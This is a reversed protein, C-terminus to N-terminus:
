KSEKAFLRNLHRGMAKLKEYLPSAPDSKLVLISPSADIILDAIDQEKSRRYAIRYATKGDVDVKRYSECDEELLSQLYFFGEKKDGFSSLLASRLENGVRYDIGNEFKSVDSPFINENELPPRAQESLSFGEFADLRVFGPYTHGNVTLYYLLCAENHVNRCVKYPSLRCPLSDWYAKKDAEDMDVLVFASPNIPLFDIVNLQKNSDIARRILDLKEELSPGEYDAPLADDKLDEDLTENREDWREYLHQDIANFGYGLERCLKEEIDRKEDSKLNDLSEIGDILLYLEAETLPRKGLYYGSRARTKDLHIDFGLAQLDSIATYITKRNPEVGYQEKFRAAIDEANLHRGNEATEEKLLLLIFYLYNRKVICPNM